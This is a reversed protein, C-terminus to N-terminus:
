SEALGAVRPDSWRNRRYAQLRFGPYKAYMACRIAIPGVILVRVLQGLSNLSRARESELNQGILSFALYAAALFVLQPWTLQFWVRTAESATLKRMPREDERLVGVWFSRYNKRVLRFILAWQCLFFFLYAVAAVGLLNSELTDVSYPSTAVSMSIVSGFWCPWTISWSAALQQSWRLNIPEEM